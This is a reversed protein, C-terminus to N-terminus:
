TITLMVLLRAFGAFIMVYVGCLACFAYGPMFAPYFHFAIGLYLPLTCWVAYIKCAVWWFTLPLCCLYNYLKCSVVKQQFVGRWRRWVVCPRVANAWRNGGVCGAKSTPAPMARRLRGITAGVNTEMRKGNPVCPRDDIAKRCRIFPICRFLLSIYFYTMRLPVGREPHCAKKMKGKANHM